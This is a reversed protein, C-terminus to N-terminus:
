HEPAHAGCRVARDAESREEQQQTSAQNEQLYAYRIRCPGHLMDEV